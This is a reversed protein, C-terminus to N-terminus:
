VARFVGELFIPAGSQRLAGPPRRNVETLRHQTDSVFGADALERLLEDSTLFCQPQGSFATFVFSEGVVPVAADPLTARSFTFVFLTAGGRAIRRAEQIAARFEAASRALNWIGHAVVVDACRHALPLRDMAARVLTVRTHINRRRMRESAAVLMPMSLDLGTITWGQEALPEINRGAGCGIDVLRKAGRPSMLTQALTLLHQNPPSTMFGTVIEPKTWPSMTIGMM